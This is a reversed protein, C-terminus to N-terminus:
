VRGARRFRGGEPRGEQGRGPIGQGGPGRHGLPLAGGPLHRRGRRGQRARGVAGQQRCVVRQLLHRRQRAEADAARVRRDLYLRQDDGRRRAALRQDSEGGGGGGGYQARGHGA